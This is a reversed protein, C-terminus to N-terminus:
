RPDPGAHRRRRPGRDQQSRPIHPLRRLLPPVPSAVPADRRPLGPRLRPGGAGLWRGAHGLRDHPCADRRQPRRLHEPRPHGPHPRQRAHLLADARRRDQVHEPDDAAPGPVGHLDHDPQRGPARRPGRGRRGGRVADRGSPSAPTIPFISIVESVKYAVRAAAENGDLCEWRQDMRRIERPRAKRMAALGGSPVRVRIRCTGLGPQFPIRPRAGMARQQEIMDTRAAMPAPGEAGRISVLPGSVATGVPAVPGLGLPNRRDVIAPLGPRQAGGRADTPGAAAPEDVWAARRSGPGSVLRIGFLRVRSPGRAGTRRRPM